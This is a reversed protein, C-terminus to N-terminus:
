KVMWTLFILALPSPKRGVPFPIESTCNSFGSGMFRSAASSGEM